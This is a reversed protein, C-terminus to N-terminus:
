KGRGNAAHLVVDLADDGIGGTRLKAIHEERGPNAGILARNEMKEGMGEELRQQEKRGTRDNVGHRVFLIDPLHATDPLLNRHGIRHHPNTRQRKRSHGIEGAIIGLIEHQFRSIRRMGPNPHIRKEAAQERGEQGSEIRPPQQDQGEMAGGPGIMVGHFMHMFARQHHQHRQQQQRHTRHKGARNECRGENAMMPFFEPVTRDHIRRAILDHVVHM